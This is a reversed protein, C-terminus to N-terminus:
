LFFGSPHITTVAAGRVAPMALRTIREPMGRAISTVPRWQESPALSQPIPPASQRDPAPPFSDAVHERFMNHYRGVLQGNLCVAALTDLGKRHLFVPASARDPTPFTCAYAWDSWDIWLLEAANKGIHPDPIRGAALLIDHVQAHMRAALWSDDRSRAEKALAAVDHPEGKLEKVHWGEVLPIQKRM